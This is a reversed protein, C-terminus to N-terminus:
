APRILVRPKVPRRFLPDLSSRSPSSLDIKLNEPTRAGVALTLRSRVAGCHKMGARVECRESRLDPLEADVTWGTRPQAGFHLCRWAGATHPPRLWGTSHGDVERRQNRGRGHAGAYKGLRARRAADIKQCWSRGLALNSQFARGLRRCGDFNVRGDLCTPCAPSARPARYHGTHVRPSPISLGSPLSAITTIPTLKLAALEAVNSPLLGIACTGDTVLDAAAGLSAVYLRPPVTPFQETFARLADFIPPMPYFADLVISLEAELGRALGRAQERFAGAEEAIRRARTLLARGAPTLVRATPRVISCRSASKLRWSESRTPLQRSLGNCRNQRKRSAARTLSRCFFGSRISPLLTWSRIWIDLRYLSLRKKSRHGTSVEEGHKGYCWRFGAFDSQNRVWLELGATDRPM